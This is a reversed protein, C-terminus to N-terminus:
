HVSHGVDNVFGLQTLAYGWSGMFLKEFLWIITLGCLKPSCTSLIKDVFIIAAMKSQLPLLLCPLSLFRQQPPPQRDFILLPTPFHLNSGPKSIEIVQQNGLHIFEEHCFELLLLNVGQRQSKHTLHNNVYRLNQLGNHYFSWLIFCCPCSASEEM